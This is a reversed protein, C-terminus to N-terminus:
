GWFFVQPFHCVWFVIQEFQCVWLFLQCFRLVGFFILIWFKSDLFITQAGTTPLLWLVGGPSYAGTICKLVTNTCNYLWIWHAGNYMKVKFISDVDSWALSAYIKISQVDQSPPFGLYNKATCSSSVRHFWRVSAPSLWVVWVTSYYDHLLHIVSLAFLTSIYRLTKYQYKKWWTSLINALM